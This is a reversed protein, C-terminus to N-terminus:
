ARGGQIARRQERNLKAKKAASDLQAQVGKEIYPRLADLLNTIVREGNSGLAMCNVGALLKDFDNGAGFVANLRSKVENDIEKVTELERGISEMDNEDISNSEVKSIYRKEIEPLERWLNMFREYLNFDSPNFSLIGNENIELRLLGDDVVVREM